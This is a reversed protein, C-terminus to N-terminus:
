PKIVEHSSDIAEAAMAAAEETSAEAAEETSAEAAEEMSVALARSDASLTAEQLGATISGVSPAPIQPERTAGMFARIATLVEAALIPVAISTREIRISIVAISSREAIRFTRTTTTSWEGTTTGITDGITGVGASAAM